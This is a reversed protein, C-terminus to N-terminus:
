NPKSMLMAKLAASFTAPPPGAHSPENAGLAILIMHFNDRTEAAPGISAPYEVPREMCKGM